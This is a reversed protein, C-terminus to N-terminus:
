ILLLPLLSDNDDLAFAVLMEIVYALTLEAVGNNGINIMISM